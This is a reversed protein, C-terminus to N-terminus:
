RLTCPWSAASPMLSAAEVTQSIRWASPVSGAGPRAGVVQAVTEADDAVTHIM